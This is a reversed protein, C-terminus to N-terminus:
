EAAATEAACLVKYRIGAVSLKLKSGKRRACIYDLRTVGDDSVGTELWGESKLYAAVGELTKFWRYPRAGDIASSGVEFNDIREVYDFKTNPKTLFGEPYDAQQVYGLAFAQEATYLIEDDLYYTPAKM